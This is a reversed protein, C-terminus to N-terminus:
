QAVQTIGLVFFCGRIKISIHGISHAYPNKKHYLVFYAQSDKDLKNASSFENPTWGRAFQNTTMLGNMEILLLM